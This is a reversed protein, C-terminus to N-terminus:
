TKQLMPMIALASPVLRTLPDPPIRVWFINLNPPKSVGNEASTMLYTELIDVKFIFTAFLLNCTVIVLIVSDLCFLGMWLSSTDQEVPGPPAAGGQAGGEGSATARCLM